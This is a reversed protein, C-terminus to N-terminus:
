VGQGWDYGEWIWKDTIGCLDTEVEWVEEKVLFNESWSDDQLHIRQPQMQGGVQSVCDSEAWGEVAIKLSFEGSKRVRKGLIQCFGKRYWM